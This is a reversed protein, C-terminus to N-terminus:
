KALPNKEKKMKALEIQVDVLKKELDMIKYKASILEKKSSSDGEGIKQRVNEKLVLLNDKLKQNEDLVM